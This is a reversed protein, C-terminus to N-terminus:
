LNLYHMLIPSLEGKEGAADDYTKLLARKVYCLEGGKVARRKMQDWGKNVQKRAESVIKLLPTQRAMLANQVHEPAGLETCKSIYDKLATITDKKMADLAAEIKEEFGPWTTMGEHGELGNFAETLEENLNLVVRDKGKGIIHVGYKRCLAGLVRLSDRRRWAETRTSIREAILTARENITELILKHFCSSLANARIALSSIYALIENPAPLVVEITGPRARSAAIWANFAQLIAQYESGTYDYSIKFLTKGTLQATHDQLEPIGSIDSWMGGDKTFLHNDVCSVHFQGKVLKCGYEDHLEAAVRTNRALIVVNDREQKAEEVEDWSAGKRARAKQHKENAAALAEPDADEDDVEPRVVGSFTCVATISQTALRGGADKPQSANEEIVTRLIPNDNARAINSVVMLDDCRAQEERAIKERAHNSDHLGPLDVLVFGSSLLPADLYITVSEIIPWLGDSRFRKLTARLESIKEIKTDWTGNKMDLPFPLKKVLTSMDRKASDETTIGSGIKFRDLSFGRMSGFLARLADEAAREKEDMGRKEDPDIEENEDIFSLPNYERLMQGLVAGLDEEKPFIVSITFKTKHEAKRSRYHVPFSTVARGRAEALAIGEQRLLSCVLNSKGAGSPGIIGIKREYTIAFAHFSEAEKAHEEPIKRPCSRYTKIISNMVSDKTVKIAERIQPHLHPLDRLLSAETDAGIAASREDDPSQEM